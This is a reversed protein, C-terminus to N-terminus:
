KKPAIKAMAADLQPDLGHTIDDSTLKVEQDPKIGVKDINAGDPMLWKAITVHLSTNQALPVVEQVSGKGFSNEGILTARHRTKLAGSVIESASASGGNILVVVPITTLQGQHDINFKQVKGQADQQGVIEGDSFFESGIHIAADLYGGPNNRLDLILSTAKHNVMNAVAKDWEQITTDGFRSLRLYAVQQNGAAANPDDRYTLDISDVTIQRRTIKLVVPEPAGQRILTLTVTSGAAGRIQTVADDLVLNLSNNNNIKAIIDGTMVGAAAAPSDKLPAIISLQQDKNYGLEAGIGEYSGSLQSQINKNQDPNFFSTYPDGASAVMGSIAGYMLKKDDVQSARLYKNKLLYEVQDFLPSNIANASATQIIAPHLPQTFDVRYNNGLVFGGSLLVIGTITAVVPKVWYRHNPNTMVPLNNIPEPSLIPM